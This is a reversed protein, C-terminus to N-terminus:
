QEGEEADAEAQYLIQEHELYRYFFLQLEQQFTQEDQKACYRILREEAETLKVTIRRTTAM